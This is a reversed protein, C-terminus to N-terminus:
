KSEEAVSMLYMELLRRYREPIRELGALEIEARRRAAPHWWKGDESSVQAEGLRGRRVDGTTMREGRAPANPGGGANGPAPRRSEDAGPAGPCGPDSPPSPPPQEARKILRDLGAAIEQQAVQVTAGHHEADLQEKVSGMDRALGHLPQKDGPGSAVEGGRVAPAAALALMGALCLMARKM